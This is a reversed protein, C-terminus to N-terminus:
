VNLVPKDIGNTALTRFGAFYPQQEFEFAWTLMGELNAHYRDALLLVNKISAATYTPYVTGNRYANQPHDRASCAACGEPDYESIIVPLARFQAFSTVIELGHAVNQLNHGLGMQVRGDVIKPSGKAHFTIFDLPAGTGGTAANRGTACHELFHRLFAGAKEGSPDTTAPGGVRAGPLARKVANATYDYLRNYEEPTGRWYSIDPENWLEWRW